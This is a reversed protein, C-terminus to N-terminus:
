RVLCRVAMGDDRNSTGGIFPYFDDIYLTYAVDATATRESSSWFLGYSSQSSFGNDWDGAFVGRFAGSFQWGALGILNDLNAFEGYQDGTPLRWGKPCISNPADGSGGSMTVTTEGATATPWNYFYGGFHDSSYDSLDYNEGNSTIDSTLPGYVRPDDYSAGTSSQTMAPITFASITNLDTDANTAAYNQIKLNSIMWCNGDVLKRIQYDQHNRIDRMLLTSDDAPYVPLAACAAKTMSQIPPPNETVDYVVNFNYLGKPLDKPITITLTHDYKDAADATHNTHVNTDATTLPQNNLALTAGDILPNQLRATLNYGTPNDTNVTTSNTLDKSLYSIANRDVEFNFAPQDLTLTSLAKTGDGVSSFLLVALPVILSTLLVKSTTRRRKLFFILALVGLVIIIDAALVTLWNASAWHSVDALHGAFTGAAPSSPTTAAGATTETINLNITQIQQM